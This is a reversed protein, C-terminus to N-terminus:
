STFPVSAKSVRPAAPAGPQASAARAPQLHRALAERARFLLVKVHTRSKNLVRAIQSVDMHEVYRLWLAQYQVEPLQRRALLWLQRHDEQRALTEAPDLPDVAEEPQSAPPSPRFRLHDTLRNRAISFLWAAWSRNTNFTNIAQYARIFTDQTIERADPPSCRQAVFAYIRREYRFVLEEFASASGAQTECALGEDSTEPRGTRVIPRADIAPKQRRRAPRM